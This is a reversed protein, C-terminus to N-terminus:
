VQPPKLSCNLFSTYNKLSYYFFPKDSVFYQEKTKELTFEQFYLPYFAESITNLVATENTSNTPTVTLQKTLHCKGNCKLEPVDKNVCYTDVIYDINLQFYAM